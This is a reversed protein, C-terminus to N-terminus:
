SRPPRRWPQLPSNSAGDSAYKRRYRRTQAAGVSLCLRKYYQQIHVTPKPPKSRSDTRGSEIQTASPASDERADARQLGGTACPAPSAGRRREEDERAAEEGREGSGCYISRVCSRGQEDRYRQKRYYVRKGGRTEWGM